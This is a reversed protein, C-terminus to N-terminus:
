VIKKVGENIEENIAYYTMALTIIQITVIAVIVISTIYAM